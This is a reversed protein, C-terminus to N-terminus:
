SEPIASIVVTGITYVLVCEKKIYEIAAFIGEMWSCSQDTTQLKEISKVLNWNGCQMRCLEKVNDLGMVSDSGGCDSGMLIVGM